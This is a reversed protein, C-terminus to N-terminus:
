HIGTTLNMSSDLKSDDSFFELSQLVNISLFMLNEKEKWVLIESTAKLGGYMQKSRTFVVVSWYLFLSPSKGPSNGRDMHLPIHLSAIPSFLSLCPCHAALTFWQSVTLCEKLAECKLVV